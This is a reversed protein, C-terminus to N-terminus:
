IDAQRPLRFSLFYKTQKKQKSRSQKGTQASIEKILQFDSRSGFALGLIPVNAPNNEKVNRKINASITEGITAQGDTLFWIMPAINEKLLGSQRTRGVQKLAELLASNINTSGRTTLSNVYQQGSLLNAGTAQLM